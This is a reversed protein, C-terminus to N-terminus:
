QLEKGGGMQFRGVRFCGSRATCIAGGLNCRFVPSGGEAVEVNTPELALNILESVRLQILAGDQSGMSNAASCVYNGAVDSM